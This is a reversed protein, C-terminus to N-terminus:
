GIAKKWVKRDPIHPVHSRVMFRVGDTGAARECDGKERWHLQAVRSLHFGSTHVM